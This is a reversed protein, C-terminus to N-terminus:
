LAVSEPWWVVVDMKKAFHLRPATEPLVIGAPATMTNRGIEAFAPQLKWPLHHINGRLINGRGNATYLCYRETAFHEFSGPHSTQPPDIVQGYRAEFEAPGQSRHRQSNYHIAGDVAHKVSMSAHVYNLNYGARAGWVALLSEADLSFFYVGPKGQVNVYTRINLEAFQSMGPIPPCGRFRVGSMWFPIVGVWAHGEFSDLFPRLPAPLAPRVSEADLEWHAFLLDHWTQQMVWHGDPIPFPRHAIANLFDVPSMVSHYRQNLIPNRVSM